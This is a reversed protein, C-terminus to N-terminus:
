KKLKSKAWKVGFWDTVFAGAAAAPTGTLGVLGITQPIMRMWTEGFRKLSFPEKKLLGNEIWGAVSRITAVELAVLLPNTFAQEIFTEVIM